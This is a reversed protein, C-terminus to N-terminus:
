HRAVRRVRQNCRFTTTATAARWGDKRPPRNKRRTRRRLRDSGPAAPVAKRDFARVYLLRDTRNAKVFIAPAKVLDACSPRRWFVGAIMPPPHDPHSSTAPSKQTPHYASILPKCMHFRIFYGVVLHSRRRFSRLQAVGAAGKFSSFIGVITPPIIASLTPPIPTKRPPRTKRPPGM